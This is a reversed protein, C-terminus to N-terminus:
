QHPPLCLVRPSRSSRLHSPSTGFAARFSDSLHSHSNFGLERALRALNQEGEAIRVLAERLRLRMRYQHVSLGVQQRFLRALHFPSSSIARAIETLSLPERFRQALLLCADHATAQHAHHTTRRVPRLTSAVLGRDRYACSLTADLLRLAGEELALADVEPLAAAARLAQQALYVRPSSLAQAFRFPVGGAEAQAPDSAQVADWLLAPDFVFVTCDDGCGAPHAIRYPEHASFFLVQNRDAIARQGRTEREFTGHRPFVIQNVGTCEERGRAFDHPRCCVDYVQVIDSRYLAHQALTENDSLPARAARRAPDTM